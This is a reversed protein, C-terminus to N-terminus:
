VEDGVIVRHHLGTFRRQRVHQICVPPHPFRINSHIPEDASRERGTPRPRVGIASRVLRSKFLRANFRSPNMVVALLFNTCWYAPTAMTTPRRELKPVQVAVLNTATDDAWGAGAAALGSRTWGSASRGPRSTRM